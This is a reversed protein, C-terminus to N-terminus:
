KKRKQDLLASAARLANEIHLRSFNSLQPCQKLFDQKEQYFSILEMTSKNSLVSEWKGVGYQDRNARDFDSCIDAHAAAAMALLIFVAIIKKMM